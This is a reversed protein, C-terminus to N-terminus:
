NFPALFNDNQVVNFAVSHTYVGRSMINKYTDKGCGFMLCIKSIRESVTKNKMTQKDSM